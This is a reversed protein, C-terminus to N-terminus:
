NTKALIKNIFYSKKSKSNVQLYGQNVLNDRVKAWENKDIDFTTLLNGVDIKNNQSKETEISLYEIIKNTVKELDFKKIKPTVLQLRKTEPILKENVTITETETELTSVSFYNNTVAKTYALRALYLNILKSPLVFITVLKLNEKLRSFDFKVTEFKRTEWIFSNAIMPVSVLVIELLSVFFLKIVLKLYSNTINMNTIFNTAPNNHIDLYSYSAVISLILSGALFIKAIKFCNKNKIFNLGASLSVKVLEIILAILGFLLSNLNLVKDGAIYFLVSFYGSVIFSTVVLSYLIIFITFRVINSFIKM